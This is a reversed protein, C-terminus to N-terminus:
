DTLAVCLPLSSMLMIPHSVFDNVDYIGVVHRGERASFLAGVVIM